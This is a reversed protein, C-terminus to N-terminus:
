FATTQGPSVFTRAASMMVVDITEAVGSMDTRWAAPVITNAPM